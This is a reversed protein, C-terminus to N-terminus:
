KDLEALSALWAQLYRQHRLLVSRKGCILGGVIHREMLSDPPNSVYCVPSSEILASDIIALSDQLWNGLRRKEIPIRVLEEDCRDRTSAHFHFKRGLYLHTGDADEDWPMSGDAFMKDVVDSTLSVTDPSDDTGVVTWIYLESLLKDVECRANKIKGMVNKSEVGAVGAKVREDRWHHYEAIAGEIRAHYGRIEISKLLQLANAFVESDLSWRQGPLIGHSMEWRGM